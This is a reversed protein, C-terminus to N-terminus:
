TSSQSQKLMDKARQTFSLSENIFDVGGTAKAEKIYAQISEYSELYEAPDFEALETANKPM